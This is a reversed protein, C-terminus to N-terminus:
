PAEFLLWEPEGSIEGFTNIRFEKDSVIEEYDQFWLKEPVLTVRTYNRIAFNITWGGFILISVM